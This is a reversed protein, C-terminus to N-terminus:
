PEIENKWAEAIEEWNVLSLEDPSEFDPTGEPFIHLCFQKVSDANLNDRNLARRIFKVKEQYSEYENDIWLNINWTLYASERTGFGKWGNYEIENM